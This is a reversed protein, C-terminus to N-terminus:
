RAASGSACPVGVLATIHAPLPGYRIREIRWEWGPRQLPATLERLDGEDYIRLMSVVGDWMGTFGLVPLAYTLPIWRWDFPRVLPVVLPIILPIGFMALAQMPERGVIEYVAIPQGRDMADKLIARAIEPPFHHFANMLVRFGTLDAPVRTADVPEERYAVAGRSVEAARRFADLNPYLDTLVVEVDLGGRRLEEALALTPGGSGSCLDVVRTVGQALVHPALHRVILRTAGILDAGKRLSGTMGARLIAPFWPLDELEVLQVRRM